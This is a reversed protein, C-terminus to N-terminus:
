DLIHPSVAAYSTGLRLEDFDTSYRSEITIQELRIDPISFAFAAKDDAPPSDLEPDLWVRVREEGEAFRIRAVFFVVEDAAKTSEYLQGDESNFRDAEAGWFSIRSGPLRGLRVGSKKDGLRLFAFRHGGANGYSQALFSIWVESGDAGVGKKDVMRRPWVSADLPRVTRSFSGYSTRLQGGQTQLERDSRDRFALGKVGRKDESHQWRLPAHDVSAGLSGHESWCGSWGWGGHELSLGSHTFDVTTPLTEPYDFGDYVVPMDVSRPPSCEAAARARGVHREAWDSDVVAVKGLDIWVTQGAFISQEAQDVDDGHQQFQVSGELVDVVTGAGPATKVVFQSRVQAVLTADATHVFWPRQGRTAEWSVGCQGRNLKLRDQEILEFESPGVFTITGYENLMYEVIGSDLSFKEGVPFKLFEDGSPGRGWTTESSVRVLPVAETVMREGEFNRHPQVNLAPRPLVTVLMTTIGSVLAAVLIVLGLLMLWSRTPNQHITADLIISSSSAGGILPPHSSDSLKRSLLVHLMVRQFARDANQPDERLWRTLEQAKEPPLDDHGDLHDDIRKLADNDKM